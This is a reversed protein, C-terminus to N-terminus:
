GQESERPSLGGRFNHAIIDAGTQFRSCEIADLIALLDDPHGIDATQLQIRVLNM